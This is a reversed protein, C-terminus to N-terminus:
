AIDLLNWEKCGRCKVKVVGKVIAEQYLYRGCNSCRVERMVEPPTDVVASVQTVSKCRHCKIQILGVEIHEYGLFKGCQENKCYIPRMEKEGPLAPVKKARQRQANLQPM